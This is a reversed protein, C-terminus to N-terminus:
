TGLMDEMGYMGPRNLGATFLAARLAGAAFVERSGASHSLTIVEHQGALVVEHEGVITGGRLAHLGIEHSGREARRGHRGYVPEPEYPLAAAAANYLMLATGSPADLKQNHHREIIEVDFDEGLAACARKVLQLLLNIGLSLNGSQFVPILRAAAHIAARRQPDHGTTAVVLPLKRRECYPLLRDLTAPASFDLAVDAPGDYDGVSTYVPYAFGNPAASVDLGAAIFADPSSRCLESVARGM